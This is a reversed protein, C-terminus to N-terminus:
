NIASWVTIAGFEDGADMLQSCSTHFTVTQFFDGNDNYIEFTLRPPIRKRPGTVTFIDGIAVNKFTELLRAGKKKHGFVLITAPDPFPPGSKPSIIVENSKQNHYTDYNGNYRLSIELPKDTCDFPCNSIDSGDPGTVSVDDLYMGLTTNTGISGFLVLTQGSNGSTFNLTEMQWDDNANHTILENTDIYVHVTNDNEATTRSKWAYSLTYDADPCTPIFQSITVNNNAVLDGNEDVRHHSDLEAKQVGEYAPAGGIDGIQIELRGPNFQEGTGFDDTWFVLWGPIRVDDNCRDDSPEGTVPCDDDTGLPHNEGYYTMWGKPGFSGFPVVPNEFGGNVILEAAFATPTLTFASLVLLLASTLLTNFVAKGATNNTNFRKM